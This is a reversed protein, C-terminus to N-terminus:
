KQLSCFPEHLPQVDRGSCGLPLGPLSHKAVHTWIRRLSLITEITQFPRLSLRLTNQPLDVITQFEPKWTGLYFSRLAGDGRTVCTAACPPERMFPQPGSPERLRFRESGPGKHCVRAPGQNLGKPQQGNCLVSSRSSEKWHPKKSHFEMDLLGHQERAVLIHARQGVRQSEGRPM